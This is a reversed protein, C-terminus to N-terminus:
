GSPSVRDTPVEVMEMYERVSMEDITRQVLPHLTFQLGDAVEATEDWWAMWWEWVDVSLNEKVLVALRAEKPVLYSDLAVRVEVVKDLIEGHFDRNKKKLERLSSVLPGQVATVFSGAFAPRSRQVALREGVKRQIEESGFGDLPSQDALWGKEVPFEIRLDAVWFEDGSAIKPVHLFYSAGQFKALQSRQGKDVLTGIDYVPSVQVWPRRPRPADEEAIDCTQSTIIGYRPLSAGAGEIVEPGEGGVYARTRAWISSRPDAYYFFPPDSILCGQTFAKLKDLVGAPWDDRTVPLGQDITARLANEGSFENM